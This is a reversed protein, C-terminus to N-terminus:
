GAGQLTPASSAPMGATMRDRYQRIDWRSRSCPPAPDLFVTIQGIDHGSDAGVCEHGDVRGGRQGSDPVAVAHGPHRPHIKGSEIGEHRGVILSEALRLAAPEVNGPWLGVREVLRQCEQVAATAFGLDDDLRIPIATRAKAHLTNTLRGVEGVGDAGTACNKTARHNLFKNRAVYRLLVHCEEEARWRALQHGGEGAALESLPGRTAARGGDAFARRHRADDFLHQREKIVPPPAAGGLDVELEVATIPCGFHEFDIWSEGAVQPEDPMAAEIQWQQGRQERELWSRNSGSVKRGGLHPLPKEARVGRCRSSM